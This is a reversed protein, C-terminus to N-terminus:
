RVGEVRQLRVRVRGYAGTIVSRRSVPEGIVEWVTADDRRVRSRATIPAGAPLLAGLTQSTGSTPPGTEATDEPYVVCGLIPTESWTSVPRGAEDRGTDQPDLVVLLEGHPPPPMGSRDQWTVM